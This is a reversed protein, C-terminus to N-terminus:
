ERRWVRSFLEAVRPSVVGSHSLEAETEVWAHVRATPGIGFVLVMAHVHEPMLVFGVGDHSHAACSTLPITDRPHASIGSFTIFHAYLEDDIIQRRNSM